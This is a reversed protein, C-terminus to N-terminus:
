ARASRGTKKDYYSTPYFDLRFNEFSADASLEKINSQDYLLDIIAKKFCHCKENGIYGTDKCDRCTYVPDLYDAPYGASALLKQKRSRLIALEKKLSAVAQDDGNLLKKGYQVSLIAISDDLAKFEPLKECVENYHATQIDHNKLQRKEYERMISYYQSKKLAM